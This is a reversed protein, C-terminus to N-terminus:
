ESPSPSERGKVQVRAMGPWGKGRYWIGELKELDVNLRKMLELTGQTSPTGACFIGIAVGIKESLGQRLPQAKRLGAVDCPKGIFVCARPAEGVKGLGDCPSAPSYRSGTQALLDERNRSLVTMNKWSYEPDAGTHLAAYM